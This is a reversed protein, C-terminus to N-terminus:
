EICTSSYAAPNSEIVSHMQIVIKYTILIKIYKSVQVQEGFFICVIWQLHISHFRPKTRKVSHIKSQRAYRNVDNLWMGYACFYKYINLMWGHVDHIKTTWEGQIFKTVVNWHLIVDCQRLLQTIMADHNVQHYVDEVDGTPSVLVFWFLNTTKM